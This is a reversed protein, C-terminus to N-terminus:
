TARAIPRGGAAPPDLPDYERIRLRELNGKRDVEGQYWLLRTEPVRVAAAVDVTTPTYRFDEVAVTDDGLRTVFAGDGTTILGDLEAITAVSPPRERRLREAVTEAQRWVRLLNEGALKRLDAESWGRRSLEAFLVPFTSVDGLEEPVTAGDYDSGIGIHDM